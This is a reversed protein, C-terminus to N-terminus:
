SPWTRPMRAKTQWNKAREAYATGPLESVIRQTYARAQEEKGLRQWGSALASLLDGRGHAAVQQFYGQRLRLVKEYDNVATELLKRVMDPMPVYKSAELLVAARPILVGVNEPELTVATQMEDLGKQWLALGTNTDGKRFALGARTFVGSGHWVLAEAHKPNKALIEETLKMAKDFRGRDGALGAFFDARVQMDFREAPPRPNAQAAPKEQAAASQTLHNASQPVAALALLAAGVIRKLKQQM